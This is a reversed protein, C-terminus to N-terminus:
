LLLVERIKPYSGQGQEPVLPGKRRKRWMVEVEATCEVLWPSLSSKRINNKWAPAMREEQQYERWLGSPTSAERRWTELKAEPSEVTDEGM